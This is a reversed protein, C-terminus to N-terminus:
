SSRIYTNKKELEFSKQLLKLNRKSCEEAQLTLLKAQEITKRKEIVSLYTGRPYSSNLSNSSSRSSAKSSSSSSRNFDTKSKHESKLDHLSENKGIKLSLNVNPPSNFNFTNAFSITQLHEKKDLNLPSVDKNEIYALM